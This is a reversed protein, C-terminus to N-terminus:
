SAEHRAKQLSEPAQVMSIMKGFIGQYKHLNTTRQTLTTADTSSFLAALVVTSRLMKSNM